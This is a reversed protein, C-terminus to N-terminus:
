GPLHFGSARWNDRVRPVAGGFSAVGNPVPASRADDTSPQNTLAGRLIEFSV